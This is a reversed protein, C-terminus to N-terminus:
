SYNPHLCSFQHHINIASKNTLSHGSDSTVPSIIIFFHYWLLILQRLSKASELEHYNSKNKIFLCKM